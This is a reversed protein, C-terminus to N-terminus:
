AAPTASVAAKEKKSEAPTEAEADSKRKKFKLNIKPAKVAGKAVCLNHVTPTSHAGVKIWHEIREKNLSAEKTFPNYFGLDEIPPGSLKSRRESVVM